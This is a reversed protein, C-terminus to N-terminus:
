RKPDVELTVDHKMRDRNFAILRQTAQVIAQSSRYNSRLVSRQAAYDEEFKRIFLTSTQRFAYINQDDDGVAFVSPKGEIEEGVRQTLVSLFEYQSQDIDQYEDILVYAVRGLLRTFAEEPDIGLVTQDGRLVQTAQAIMGDFQVEANADYRSQADM